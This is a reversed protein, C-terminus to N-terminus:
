AIKTPDWCYKHSEKIQCVLQVDKPDIHINIAKFNDRVHNAKSSRPLVGIGQNIAWALLFQATSCKYKEAMQKILNDEMLKANSYPSGLSSYAQFIIGKEKCYEILDPQMFYPHYECQNLAPLVTAKALLEDLHKKEYNSVGIAKLKGTKYFDELVDWSEARLKADFPTPDFGTGPWHILFLDLYDVGLAKLTGEVAPRAKDAGQNSTQLKSTIFIDERKLGYKPLYQKLAEGIFAENGYLEATDIMRYGCGLAADVIDFIVNRDRIEWTGLGILPLQQKVYDRGKTDMTLYAASCPDLVLCCHFVAVKM